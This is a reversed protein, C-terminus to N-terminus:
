VKTQDNLKIPSAKSSADIEATFKKVRKNTISSASRLNANIKQITGYCNSNSSISVSPHFISNLFYSFKEIISSSVSVYSLIKRM